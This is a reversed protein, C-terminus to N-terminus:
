IVALFSFGDDSKYLLRIMCITYLHSANGRHHHNKTTTQKTNKKLSVVWVPSSTLPLLQSGTTCINQVHSLKVGISSTSIQTIREECICLPFPSSHTFSLLPPRSLNHQMINQRLICASSNQPQPSTVNTRPKIKM